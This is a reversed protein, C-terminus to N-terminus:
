MEEVNKIEAGFVELMAQVGENELARAKLTTQRDRRVEATTTDTAGQSAASPAAGELGLVTVKRGAIESALTELWPRSQELQARLTKHAPGFVFTVRDRAVDIRQAQAIVTGHFFKKQRRVEALFAEKFDGGVIPGGPGTSTTGVPQPIESRGAEALAVAPPSGTALRPKGPESAPKPAAKETGSRPPAVPATPPKRPEAPDVSLAAIVDAIPTLKRLHLWRLLAMELHFRPQASVRLEEDARSLVDFARM